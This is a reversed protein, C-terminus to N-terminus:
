LGLHSCQFQDCKQAKKITMSDSKAALRPRKLNKKLNLSEHLETMRKSDLNKTMLDSLNIEGKVKEFEVERKAKAEQGWLFSTDLHRVKGLGTRQAIGIAASADVQLHAEAQVGFDGLM